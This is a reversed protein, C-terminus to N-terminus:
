SIGFTSKIFGWVSAWVEEIMEQLGGGTGLWAVIIGIVVIVGLTMALGKVSFDGREDLVIARAKSKVNRKKEIHNKM